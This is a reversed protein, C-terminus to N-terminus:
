FRLGDLLSLYISSITLDAITGPNIGKEILDIDFKSVEELNPLSVRVKEAMKSIRVAEANGFKAIILPDKYRSLLSYYCNLISINVDRLEEYSEKIIKSGELSIKYGQTLEKAILNDEPAKLMWKYLNIRREEIERETDDDLLDLKESRMVRPSCLRYARLVNLSDYHTTKKIVNLANECASKSNKSDWVTLLPILLLFAGFHVNQALHWDMTDQVVKLILEGIKRRKKTADLFAPFSASSSALFHEYRLDPYCHERDVNGAKPDASVELLLSLVGAVAASEENQFM